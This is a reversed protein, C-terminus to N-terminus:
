QSVFGRRGAGVCLLDGAAAAEGSVDVEGPCIYLYLSLDLCATRFPCNLIKGYLLRTSGCSDEDGLM